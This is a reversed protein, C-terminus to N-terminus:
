SALFSKVYQRVAEPCGSNYKGRIQAIYFVNKNCSFEITYRKNEYVISYIACRDQNIKNAYSTVCHHMDVGEKILRRRTKIWEFEDPLLKRLQAFKTKVPIKVKETHKDRHIIMVEDHAEQLSNPSHFSLSIKRNLDKSMSLYDNIVCIAENEDFNKNYSKLRSLIVQSLLKNVNIDIHNQPLSLDNKNVYDTLINRDSERVRSIAKMTLYGIYLDKKNWNIIDSKKYMSLMMDKKTRFSLIDNVTLPPLGSGDNLSKKLDKWVMGKGSVINTYSNFVNKWFDFRYLSAIQSLTIPVWRRLRTNYLFCKFDYTFLIQVSYNQKDVIIKKNTIKYRSYAKFEISIGTASSKCSISYPEPDVADFIIERSARGDGSLDPFMEIIQKISNVTQTDPYCYYYFNYDNYYNSYAKEYRSDYYKRIEKFLPKLGGLMYKETEEQFIFQTNNVIIYIENKKLDIKGSKLVNAEINILSELPIAPSKSYLNCLSIWLMDINDYEPFSKLMNKRSHFFEIIKDFDMKYLNTHIYSLQIVDDAGFIGKDYQEKIWLINNISFRCFMYGYLIGNNADNCIKAFFDQIEFYVDPNDIEEKHYSYFDYIDKLIAVSYKEDSLMNIVNSQLNKKKAKEIIKQQTKRM